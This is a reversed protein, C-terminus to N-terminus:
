ETSTDRPDRAPEPASTMPAAISPLHSLLDRGPTALLFDTPATWTAAGLDIPYPAPPTRTALIVAVTAAGTALSAAAVFPVVSRRRRAAAVRFPPAAAAEDRALTRFRARLEADVFDSM